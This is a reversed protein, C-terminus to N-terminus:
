IEKLLRNLLYKADQAPTSCCQYGIIKNGFDDLGDHVMRQYERYGQGTFCNDEERFPENTLVVIKANGLLTPNFYEANRMWIYSEETSMRGLNYAIGSQIASRDQIIIKGGNYFANWNNNRLTLADALTSMGIQFSTLPMEHMQKYLVPSSPNRIMLIDSEAFETMLLEKLALALSSKGTGDMGEFVVHFPTHEIYKAIKEYQKMM